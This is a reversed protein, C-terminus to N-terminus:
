AIGGEIAVGRLLDVLGAKLAVMVDKGQAQSGVQITIEGVSISPGSKASASGGAPKTPQGQTPEPAISVMAKEVESKGDRIGLATGEPIHYAERRMLRSPSHIEAKATFTTKIVGWMDGVAKALMGWGSKLGEILGMVLQRGIDFFVKVGEWAGELVALIGAGMRELAHWVLYLAGVFGAALGASVLLMGGFAAVLAIGSKLALNALDFGKLTDKGFVTRLKDRITLLTDAFLLAGIVLGQFFRKFVLGHNGLFDIIPQFMTEVITKLARGTATSQSFLDTVTKLSELLKEIKIGSFIKSFNEKLKKQQVDISLLQQKAIPGLRRKIDDAAKRVSTGFLLSNMALAKFQEKGAEGQTALAISAGEVAAQLNGARLGARYFESTLGAVEDRGLAVSQSVNDITQQLFIGSDAKRTFGILEAWYNRLKGLGELRLLESRRADAQAIAYKTIAAVGAVAAGTVAILAAAIAILGGAILGGGVISSLRNFSGLLRSLPGGVNHIAQALAAMGEAAGKSAPRMKALDGGLKIYQLQSQALKSKQGAIQDKLKKIAETGVAGSGKLRSLATQMGRLAQTDQELSTQLRELAAVGGGAVQPINSELNVTFTATANSGSQAM